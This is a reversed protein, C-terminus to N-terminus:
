PLKRIAFYILVFLVPAILLHFFVEAYYNPCIKKDILFKTIDWILLGGAFIAAGMVGIRTNREYKIGLAKNQNETNLRGLFGGEKKLLVIGKFSIKYAPAPLNTSSLIKEGVEAYGENVLYELSLTIDKQSMIYFPKAMNVLMNIEELNKLDHVDELKIHNIQGKNAAFVKETKHKKFYELCELIVDLQEIPDIVSDLRHNYEIDM